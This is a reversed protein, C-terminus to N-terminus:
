AAVDMADQYLAKMEAASRRVTAATAQPHFGERKVQELVNMELLAKFSHHIPVYDIDYATVLTEFDKPAALTVTHGRQHLALALALFPQVAGRSGFGILAINM